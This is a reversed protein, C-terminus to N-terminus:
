KADVTKERDIRPLEAFLQHEKVGHKYANYQFTVFRELLLDNQSKLAENETQLRTIRQAAIKLSSPMATKPSSVKLRNKKAKYAIKIAEHSNLAQRSPPNKLILSLADRIDQWTIKSNPWGNIIDTIAKIDKPLLHRAM